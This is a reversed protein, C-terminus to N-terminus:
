LFWAFGFGNVREGGEGVVEDEEDEVAEFGVWAGYFGEGENGSGEVGELGTVAPGEGEEAGGEDGGGEGAVRGQRM